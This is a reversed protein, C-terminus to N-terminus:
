AFGIAWPRTLRLCPRSGRKRSQALDAMRCPGSGFEYQDPAGDATVARRWIGLNLLTKMGPLRGGPRVISQPSHPRIGYPVILADYQM